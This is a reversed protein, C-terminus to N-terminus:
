RMRKLFGGPNFTLAYKELTTDVAWNSNYALIRKVAEGPGPGFGPWVPHGNLITYEMIVYSGVPVLPGYVNFESEMRLNTGPQSGLVVLVRPSEGVMERVQRSIEESQPSGEVYTIRPHVARDDAVEPDISIVQGQDLLECISALFLARGGNATGTEIIWDPKVRQVVEQYVFLDTPAKAVRRGLWTTERWAMSHWFADVFQTKLEDPMPTPTGPQGDPGTFVPGKVFSSATMRRSRTRSARPFMTGVYHLTKGAGRFQRGRLEAFHDAYGTITSRREDPDARNTTTGGHVQHFSGEGLITVVNVDPTAGLREYLELNAYGGGPMSFSEDFAGYQELLKRPVFICNSEWLGDFWDRDGIFHGIDFLRYGDFPWEIERFLEDEYAQDYGANMADPQQGPGVYWQQTVVIAPAYTSLGAMGYRLVSPTLVHAGDIMFALTTGAAIGLGRNLADAPTPTADEDLDLYRFETGFSRVFEEGLKQDAASGNEVVIVEYDLDAIGQQYARSLSHLTRPAERKMNYFVVVISLDKVLAPAPAPAAIPARHSRRRLLGRVKSEKHPTEESPETTGPAPPAPTTPAPLTKRWSVGSGAVREIPADVHRGTRFEDVARARDPEEYDDVIVVGGIAVRHYLADFAAAVDGADGPGVHLLAIQKIPADGLTDGPPGQLFRVRADLLGFRAFGDRVTNLDSWAFVLEASAPEVRFRDAVWVERTGIDHAELYGRMFMAAGGRGTNCEVLDGAINETRVTDLSRRLQAIRERGMDTYPLSSGAHGAHPLAGARREEVLKEWKLQMERVPDGLKPRDPTRGQEICDALYWLRLEHDLYLEDLLAAELLNLYRDAARTLLHRRGYFDNHQFLIAQLRTSEAIDLLIDKGAESEFSDLLARLEPERELRSEEVVIALGFYVPLVLRRVPQDYEAVFDDLATMVGNRAGGETVANYHEPNLGGTPLVQKTGPRIGKMEYPQRFEEPVREPAYYLDRRGYPWLVDHMIIIPLPAGAKRAGEALMKLEHYVTFWNHDGDVLAVDVPPLQPLVNHSVDRHFIYRGPFQREHETPDFEPVPDIVHLETEPGLRDLMLATTEGRLAGIEVIRRARTTQLIPWIVREWFPYM